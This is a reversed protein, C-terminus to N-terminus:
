VREPTLRILDFLAATAPEPEAEFEYALVRRCVDFHRLAQARAGTRVYIRMLMRHADERCPDADLLTKANALASLYDRREFSLEALQAVISLYRARLRERELLFRIDTGETLDGCYLDQAKAFATIAAGTDGSIALQQGTEVADDFELVDLGLNDDLNLVYRGGRRVIPARGGLADCLQYKLSHVLSNLSQGARSRDTAPWLHQILTERPLGDAPHMALAGVMLEVKGGPRLSM